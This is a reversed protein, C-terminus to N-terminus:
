FFYSANVFWTNTKLKAGILPDVKNTKGLAINYGLGLEVHNLLKVGAGINWSLNSKKLEYDDWNTDGINFGFQPGTAVYAGILSLGFNWRVNVPIEISKLHHTSSMDDLEANVQRQSYIAAADVGLGLLPLSFQAKPGLFWGARNGSSLNSTTGSFDVKSLNLGGTVGFKIQAQSTACVMLSCAVLISFLIKKM